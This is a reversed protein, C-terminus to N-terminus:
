LLQIFIGDRRLTEVRGVPRHTPGRRSYTERNLPHLTLDDDM